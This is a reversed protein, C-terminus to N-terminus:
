VDNQIVNCIENAQVKDYRKYCVDDCPKIGKKEFYLIQLIIISICIFGSIPCVLWLNWLKKMHIHHLAKEKSWDTSCINPNEMLYFGNVTDGISISIDNRFNCLTNNYIGIAKSGSYGIITIEAQEFHKCWYYNSLYNSCNINSYISIGLIIYSVVFVLIATSMFVWGAKM